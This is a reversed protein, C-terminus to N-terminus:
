DTNLMICSTNFDLEWRGGPVSELQYKISVNHWWKSLALEIKSTDERVRHNLAEDNASLSDLYKIWKRKRCLEIAMDMEEPSIKVLKKKM